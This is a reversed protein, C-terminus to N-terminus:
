GTKIFDVCTHCRRKLSRRFVNWKKCISGDFHACNEFVGTYVPEKKKKKAM